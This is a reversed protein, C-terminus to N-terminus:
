LSKLWQKVSEILIYTQDEYNHDAGKVEITKLLNNSELLFKIKLDDAFAKVSGHDYEGYINLIPVQHESLDVDNLINQNKYFSSIFREQTAITKIKLSMLTMIIIKPCLFDYDILAIKLKPYEKIINRCNYFYKLNISLIFIFFVDSLKRISIISRLIFLFTEIFDKPKLHNDSLYKYNLNKNEIDKNVYGFHIINKPKLNNLKNSYYLTKDYLIDSKEGYFTEFHLILSVLQENVKIKNNKKQKQKQKQYFIKSFSRIFIKTINYIQEILFKIIDTPIYILIINKSKKVLFLHKINSTFFLIKKNKRKWLELYANIQTFDNGIYDKLLLKVHEKKNNPIKKLFIKSIKNSYIYNSKKKVLNKPDFDLDSQISYPINETQEVPLPYVKLFNLKKLLNSKKKPAGSNIELFLYYVNKNFFKLIYALFLSKNSIKDFLIDM